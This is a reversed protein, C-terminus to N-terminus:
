SGSNEAKERWKKLVAEVQAILKEKNADSRSLLL